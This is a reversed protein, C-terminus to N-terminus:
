SPIDSSRILMNQFFFRQEEAGAACLAIEYEGHATHFLTCPQRVGDKLLTLAPIRIKLREPSLGLGEGTMKMYSEKLTWLTFFRRQAEGPEQAARLYAREDPCFIRSALEFPADKVHEIDCGVPKDSVACLALGGAHSLSFYIGDCHPKGNADVAVDQARFGRAALMKEMLRWVGLSRRRDEARKYRLIYARRWPPIGTLASADALPDPLVSVDSLAYEVM